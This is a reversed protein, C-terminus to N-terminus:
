FVAFTLMIGVENQVHQGNERTVGTGIMYAMQNNNHPNTPEFAPRAHLQVSERQAKIIEGFVAKKSVSIM